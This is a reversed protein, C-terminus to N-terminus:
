CEALESWFVSVVQAIRKSTKYVISTFKIFSLAVSSVSLVNTNFKKITGFLIM